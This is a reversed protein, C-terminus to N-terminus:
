KRKIFQYEYGDDNKMALTDKDVDFTYNADNASPDRFDISLDKEDIVYDFEYDGQPLLLVGSGKGDFEYVTTQDYEWTGCLEDRKTVHVILIVIAAILVLLLVAAAIMKQKGKKNKRLQMKNERLHKPVVPRHPNPRINSDTERM